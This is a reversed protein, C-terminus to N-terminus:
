GRRRREAAIAALAAGAGLLMTLGAADKAGTRPNDEPKEVVQAALTRMTAVRTVEVDGIERDTIVYSGLQSPRFSLTESEADYQSRLYYLRDGLYRYLYFEGGYSASLDSVDVTLTGPTQFDPNGPFSLFRFEQEPYKELVEPVVAATSYLNMGEAGAVDVQYEWGPGVLLVEDGDNKESLSQFQGATLVPAANSVRVAEGAPVDEVSKMKQSGVEFRVTDTGLEKGTDEEQLRVAIEAQTTETGYVPKTDVVLYYRGNEMEVRPPQIVDEGTQITLDFRKGEGEEQRLHSPVEDEYRIMLPFYYEEGPCLGEQRVDTGQSITRVSLEAGFAAPASVGLIMVALALSLIKKM